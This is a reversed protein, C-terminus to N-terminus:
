ERLTEGSGGMEAPLDKYKPLGDAIRLVTEQYHVHVTPVFAYDRVLAPYVDVLDFPPHLTFVHGGCRTCFKRYSRESKNFVGVREEGRTVNLAAPRWLSFATVPAASWVRCSTCHCYGVAAADGEVTFEIAGCFCAGRHLKVSDEQPM